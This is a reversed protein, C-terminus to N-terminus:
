AIQWESEITDASLDAGCDWEIFYKGNHIKV